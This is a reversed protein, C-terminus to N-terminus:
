GFAMPRLVAIGVNYEKLNNFTDEVVLVRADAEKAIQEIENQHKIIKLEKKRPLLENIESIDFDSFAVPIVDCGRKMVRKAAEIGKETEILVVARGETSVPLGGFCEVKEFFVYASDIIEIQINLDFNKLSVKKGMREAVLAGIERNIEDSTKPFDKNIRNATVRFTEFNKNGVLGLVKENLSEFDAKEAASFSVIGFVKKLSESIDAESCIIIRGRIKKIEIKEGCIARINSVLKNEFFPRNLGKLGIEGYRVLYHM